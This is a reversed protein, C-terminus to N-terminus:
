IYDMDELYLKELTYGSHDIWMDIPNINYSQYSGIKIIASSFYTKQFDPKSVGYLFVFLTILMTSTFILVKSTKVIQSIEILDLNNNM